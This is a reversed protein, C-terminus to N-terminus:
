APPKGFVSAAQLLVAAHENAQAPDEGTESLHFRLLGQRTPIV